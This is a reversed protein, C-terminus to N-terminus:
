FGTEEWLSGNLQHWLETSTFHAHVAAEFRDLWNGSRHNDSVWYGFADRWDQIVEAHYDGDAGHEAAKHNREARDPDNIWDNGRESTLNSVYESRIFDDVFAEIRAQSSPSLKNLAANNKTAVSVSLRAHEIARKPKDGGKRYSAYWAKVETTTQNNM